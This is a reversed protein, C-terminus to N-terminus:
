YGDKRSVRNTLEKGEALRHLNQELIALVRNTYETSAGSIHPTIIVNKAKWLPHGDPLPEPDTVDLAAGRILEKNLAEIIDDTKIIPGRAINAVYTKKKSLVEFEPAGLLHETKPTLPLAVVLLDLGSALFEHLEEKTEGSFWKSPFQGEPDGLGPPTYTDDRRSEPTNRPHLTYAHIDSGMAKFVRAVQRGIAGYGLIGVRQGVADHVGELIRVWKGERQNDLYRPIFHQFALFTTIVWEAIQPGHVGNATCFEVNSDTFLPHKLLMNAGASQLQVYQLKPAVEKNAPFTNGTLLITIDKWDEDAWDDLTKTAWEARRHEIKLGSFQSKLREIKDAPPDDRTVILLKHGDLNKNGKTAPAAVGGSEHGASNIVM